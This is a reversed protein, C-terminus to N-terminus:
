WHTLILSDLPNTSTCHKNAAEGLPKEMAPPEQAGLFFLLLLFGGKPFRMACSVACARLSINEINEDM